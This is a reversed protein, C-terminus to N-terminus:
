IRLTVAWLEKSASLFDPIIYKDHIHLYKKHDSKIFLTTFINKEKEHKILSLELIGGGRSVGM